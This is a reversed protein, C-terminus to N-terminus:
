QTALALACMGRSCFAFDLLIQLQGTQLQLSGLSETRVNTVISLCTFIVEAVCKAKLYRQFGSIGSLTLHAEPNTDM